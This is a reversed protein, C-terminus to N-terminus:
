SDTGAFTFPDLTLVGEPYLFDPQHDVLRVGCGVAGTQNPGKRPTQMIPLGFALVM